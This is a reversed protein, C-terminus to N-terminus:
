TPKITNLAMKLLIETINHCDTKNIYSVPTCLSFWWFKIVYHHISYVRAQAPNSSLVITTIPMSQVPLQLNLLCVFVLMIAGKIKPSESVDLFVRSPLRENVKSRGIL